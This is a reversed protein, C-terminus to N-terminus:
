GRASMRRCHVDYWEDEDRSEVPFCARLTAFSRDVYVAPGSIFKAVDAEANHVHCLRWIDEMAENLTSWEVGNIGQAAEGFPGSHMLPRGHVDLLHEARHAGQPVVKFADYGLAAAEYLCRLCNLEFSLYRPLELERLQRICECDAGETDTKLYLPVGHRAYLAQLTTTAVAVKQANTGFRGGCAEHLSSWEADEDNVHLMVPEAGPLPKWLACEEVVLRGTRLHRELRHRMAEAAAPNPEVAVVDYGDALFREASQGVDFICAVGESTRQRKACTTAM